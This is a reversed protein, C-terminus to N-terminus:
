MSINKKNRIYEGYAYMEIFWVTKNKKAGITAAKSLNLTFNILNLNFGLNIVKTVHLSRRWLYLCYRTILRVTFLHANITLQTLLLLLQFTLLISYSQLNFYYNPLFIKKSVEELYPYTNWSVQIHFSCVLFVWSDIWLTLSSYMICIKLSIFVNWIKM